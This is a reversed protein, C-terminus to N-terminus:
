INIMVRYMILSDNEDGSKVQEIFSVDINLRIYAM